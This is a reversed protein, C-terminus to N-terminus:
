KIVEDARLLISQPITIGLAKATKLNVILTFKTPQEIPLDGPNAGKLIKDVYVASRKWMEHYNAAYSLLAGAEAFERGADSIVPVKYSACEAIIRGGHVYMMPTGWLFLTQPRNRKMTKLAVEIEDLNHVGVPHLTVGFGQALTRFENAVSAQFGSAEYMLEARRLGPVVEMALELRKSATELKLMSGGTLNGGPRALSAVFGAGVPDDMTPAVIPITKTLQMAAPIATHGVFLVDVNFAILERLLAPFQASDGHAYRPLITVNKGEVYGLDRLGQRFADDFPKAM